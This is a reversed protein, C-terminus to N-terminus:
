KILLMKRSKIFKETHGADPLAEIRYLYVGSSVKQGSDNEGNWRVSYHGTNVEGNVITNVERGLVDYIKLVIHSNEKVDYRIETSPNFP